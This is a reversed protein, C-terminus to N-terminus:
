AHIAKRSYLIIFFHYCFTIVFLTFSIAMSTNTLASQDTKTDKVYFTGFTLIAVNLLYITELSDCFMSKYLRNNLLKWCIFGVSVVGSYLVPLFMDAAMAAVLNHTILAFLLLGVWYRHKPTFPAHYADMFGIYKTNKTWKAVKSCRPFWQGFFLLVTFLGCATLIIAAAVFRPIHDHSFYQVTGDYLWVTDTSGNPYELVRHQLAAIIFRLLKSYSLLILTGLAAVPNRNSLFKAFLNFYKSLIIIFFMLLFLYTPFALQLLVKAQSTMGDYFCTEIGLDLNVWSVFVTLFNNLSPAAIARNAALMNAYFVLSHIKGTAVTINLILILAVLLIGALAFPILLLLYSNSCQECRSTALVLSLGPECEGCLVGSRNHACQEDPNSLSVNVPKETCYDFACNSIVYGTENIINIYEIWKNTNSELKITGNEESCNIIQYQQLVPDCDCRCVTPSLIPTLGIPCTCDLFSINIIHRSIGLNICPGDAAYLELQASSDQSFVNYELETCHNGVKLETQGEKLRGVGSETIVSSHITANMPNGVQDVAMVSIKFTNGKKTSIIYDSPSYNCFKLQVPMSSISLPETSFKVTKNIYDLGNSSYEASQSATCRDLLGGYIEAGSHTATNNAMFSNFYKKCTKCTKEGSGCTYLKITQIFCEATITQTSVANSETARGCASRQTDDAVFLGGGHQASNNNIMLKVCFLKKTQLKKFLYLKSSQELYVGGGKATATNSDINVYSQTLKITTAVAHIGGGNEANNQFIDSQKNISRSRGDCLLASQFVIRSSYAYIGGGDKATNHTIKVPENVFLTSEQLFIGGGSTATNNTIIVGETNIVMESQVAKIAGGFLGGHNNSFRTPGNFEVRSDFAYVPGNNNSIINKGTFRVNSQKINLIVVSKSRTINTNNLILTSSEFVDISGSSKVVRNNTLTSDFISVNCSHICIAGGTHKARCNTITSNSIISVSGSNVNIAGCFQAKNNTLTSNFISMRIGIIFSIAGGYNGINNSLECNLISM